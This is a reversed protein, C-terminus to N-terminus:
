FEVMNQFQTLFIVSLNNLFYLVNHCWLHSLGIVTNFINFVKVPPGRYRSARHRLRDLRYTFRASNIHTNTHMHTYRTHGAKDTDTSTGNNFIHQKDDLTKTHRERGGTRWRTNHQPGHQEDRQNEIKHKENQKQKNQTL